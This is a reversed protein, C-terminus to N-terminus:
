GRASGAVPAHREPSGLSQEARYFESDESCQGVSRLVPGAQGLFQAQVGPAASVKEVCQDGQAHEVTVVIV